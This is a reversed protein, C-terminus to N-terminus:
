LPLLHTNKDRASYNYPRVSLSKKHQIIYHNLNILNILKLNEKKKKKDSIKQFNSEELDHFLLCFFPRVFNPKPLNKFCVM